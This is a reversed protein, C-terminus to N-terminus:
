GRRRRVLRGGGEGVGACAGVAGLRARRVLHEAALRHLRFQQLSSTDLCQTNAVASRSLSTKDAAKETFRQRDDTNSNLDPSDKQLQFVQMSEKGYEAILVYDEM